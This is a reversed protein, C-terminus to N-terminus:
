TMAFLSNYEAYCSTYRFSLSTKFQVVPLRSPNPLFAFFIVPHM